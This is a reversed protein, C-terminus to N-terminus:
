FLIALSRVNDPICIPSRSNRFSFRGKIEVLALDFKAAPNKFLPHLIVKKIKTRQELKKKSRRLRKTPTSSGVVITM